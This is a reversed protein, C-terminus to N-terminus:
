SEGEPNENGPLEPLGDEIDSSVFQNLTEQLEAIREQRGQEQQPIRGTEVRVSVNREQLDRLGARITNVFEEMCDESDVNADVDEIIKRGETILEGVDERSAFAVKSTFEEVRSKINPYEEACDPGEIERFRQKEERLSQLRDLASDIRNELSGECEEPVSSSNIISKIESARNDLEDFRSSPSSTRLSNVETEYGSVENKVSQPVAEACDVVQSDEVESILDSLTPLYDNEIENQFQTICEQRVEENALQNNIIDRGTARASKLENLSTNTSFSEVDSKFDEINQLISDSIAKSCEVVNQGVEVSEMQDKLNTLKDLCEGGANGSSVREDVRMEDIVTQLQLSANRVDTVDSQTIEGDIANQYTSRINEIESAWGKERIYSSNVCPMDSSFFASDNGLKNRLADVFEQKAEVYNDATRGLPGSKNQLEIVREQFSEKCQNEPLSEINRTLSSVNSIIEDIPPSTPAGPLQEARNLFERAESLSGGGSVLDESEFQFIQDQGGDTILNNSAFNRVDGEDPTLASPLVNLPPLTIGFTTEFENVLSNLEDVRSMMTDNFSEIKQRQESLKNDIEPYVNECGELEKFQVFLEPPVSMTFEVNHPSAVINTLQGGLGSRDESFKVRFKMPPVNSLYEERSFDAFSPVPVTFPPMPFVERFGDSFNEEGGLAGGAGVRDTNFKITGPWDIGGLPNDPLDEGTKFEIAKILTSLDSGVTPVNARVADQVEAISEPIIRVTGADINLNDSEDVLSMAGSFEIQRDEPMPEVTVRLNFRGNDLGYNAEVMEGRVERVSMCVIIVKYPM